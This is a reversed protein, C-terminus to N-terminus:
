INRKDTIRTVGVRDCPFPDIVVETFGAARLVSQMNTCGDPNFSHIVIQCGKLEPHKSIWKAVEYGTGVDSAVYIKGGLDHDLFIYDFKYRSLIDIAEKATWASTIDHGEFKLKFLEHRIEQDDLIFIKAMERRRAYRVVGLEKQPLIIFERVKVTSSTKDLM